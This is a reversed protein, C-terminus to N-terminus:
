CLIQREFLSHNLKYIVVTKIKVPGKKEIDNEKGAIPRYCGGAKKRGGEEREAGHSAQGAEM